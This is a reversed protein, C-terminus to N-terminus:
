CSVPYFVGHGGLRKVPAWVMWVEMNAAYNIPYYKPGGEKYGTRDNPESPSMFANTRYSSVLQGSTTVVGGYPQDFDIDDALM